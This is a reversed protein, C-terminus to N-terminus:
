PLGGDIRRQLRLKRMQRGRSVEMPDWDASDSPLITSDVLPETDPALRAMLDLGSAAAAGALGGIMAGMIGHGSQTSAGVLYLGEIETTYDPRFPGTQEPSAMLGYSTGCTSRTYREQTLPTATELHVIHDRFPGIAEEARTLLKETIEAKRRKYIPNRRYSTGSAPGTEVGWTRYDRPALTMIQFNTHGPPCLRHNGPDKLSAFAMYAFPEDPFEGRNLSEFAAETEFSPFIFFNTNPIKETLDVDVVVYVCLLPYAMVSESVSTITSESLHAPGVMELMTRKYDANSVVIDAEVIEGSELEVGTARGHEIVIRTVTSRVRIEGDLAEIVEALRAPIMQGGGEPYCAGRMYHDSIVAHIAVASEHAASGYLGCWHGAVARCKQSLGCHDYLSSLPALGWRVLEDGPNGRAQAAVARLIGSYEAIGAADRPFADVLRSEYDAWGAPVRFTLGPFFLTDFDRELPRFSIRGCIGLTRLLGHMTSNPDAEGIYHLGVDFEYPGRRFVTCNGGVIGHQELVTVRHGVAALAAAAV